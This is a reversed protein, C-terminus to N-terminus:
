SEIAAVRVLTEDAEVGAWTRADSSQVWKQTTNITPDM